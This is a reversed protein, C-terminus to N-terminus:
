GSRRPDGQRQARVWGGPDEDWDHGTDAIGGLSADIDDLRREYDLGRRILDAIFANRHELGARQDLEAVLDDDLHISLRM